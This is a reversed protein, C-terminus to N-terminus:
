EKWNSMLIGLDRVNVIGDKNLDEQTIDTTKFWKAVLLSYDLSNVKGDQNIDGKITPLAPTNFSYETSQAPNGAKDTSNVLFYYTTNPSLDTLTISHSTTYSTDEKSYPYSGPSTGYKVLSTAKEDTEWTIVATTPTISTANVSSITPPTTDPTTQEIEFTHESLDTTIVMTTNGDTMVWNTYIAGDRKVQYTISPNMKYLTIDVDAGEGKVTFTRNEGEYKLALHEVKKSTEIQTANNYELYTSNRIFFSQLNGSQTRLFCYTSDTSYNPLNINNGSAIYDDYGQTTIHLSTFNENTTEEFTPPQEEGSNIAYIVTIRHMESDNLKFRVIPHDVENGYGYGDVRTWFKEVTVESKPSSFLYLEIPKGTYKSTTKWKILNAQGYSIENGFTQSLWNIPNNEITLDGHVYGPTVEDGSYTSETINLSGFHFLTDIQRNQTGTLDDLVVFYEKNPYLVSRRWTVPNDLTIIGDEDRDWCWGKSPIEASRNEIINWNMEAETFEFFDSILYDKLYAPNEFNTYSASGKTAGGVKGGGNNIMLINHGKSDKPGYWLGESYDPDRNYKKVEGSDLLLLDGKSYYEFALNDHHTMVRNTPVPIHFFRFFLYDSTIDWNKRFIASDAEESIFTKFDPEEGTVAFKDYLMYCLHARDMSMGSHENVDFSFKSLYWRHWKADSVPMTTLTYYSYDGWSFENGMTCHNPARGDPLMEWIYNNVINRVLPYKEPLNEDYYHSYANVWNYFDEIWYEKYGELWCLGGRNNYEGLGSRYNLEAFPTKNCLWETGVELWDSPGTDYPSTYDSLCIGTMGLAFGIRMKTHPNDVASYGNYLDNARAGFKDRVATDIAPYNEVLYNHILDYTVVYDLLAQASFYGDDHWESNEGVNDLAEVAKEAFRTDNSILYALALRRSRQAKYIERNDPNTFNYPLDYTEAWNPINDHWYKYPNIDRYRWGPTETINNFLLCPHTLAQATSTALGLLLILLFLLFIGTTHPLHMQGRKINKKIVDKLQNAAM